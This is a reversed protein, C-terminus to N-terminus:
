VPERSGHLAAGLAGVTQPEPAALVVGDLGARILEMLAPNRAGGGAFLLPPLAGVRRLTTITRRAIAEHLGRAIRDRSEGRHILGIVESEAFVTCMSSVAAASDAALAAAGLDDLAVGLARAMVELFRGTGAACKDNMEFDLVRGAAGLRIVKTDQGGIDLIARAQPFLHAAGLAYAGIETIVAAGFREAAAHRGYGTAVLRDCPRRAVLGAAVEQPECGADFVARDVVAGDKLWVADVTRSGVDLGLVRM